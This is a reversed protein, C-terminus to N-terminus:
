QKTDGMSPSTLLANSSTGLLHLRAAFLMAMSASQRPHDPLVIGLEALIARGAQLAEAFRDTKRCLAMRTLYVRTKDIGSRAQACIITFLRENEEVLQSRAAAEAAESHAELTLSYHSSWAGAPLLELATATFRRFHIVSGASKAQAAAALNLAALELRQKETELTHLGQNLHGVIETIPYGRNTTEVLHRMVTGIRVKILSRTEFPLLALAAHRVQDHAFRYHEPQQDTTNDVAGGQWCRPTAPIILGNLLAKTLETATQQRSKGYVISLLTLDFCPGICGAYQLVTRPGSPFAEISRTLLIGVNPTVATAMITRLDSDWRGSEENFCITGAEHLQNLFQKLFFPNGGTKELCCRALPLMCHLPQYLTESLLSGIEDVTLPGLELHVLPSEPATSRGITELIAAAAAGTAASAILLGQRKPDQLFSTILTLTEHDIRHLDDQIIVLTKCHHDIADILRQCIALGPNVCLHRNPPLDSPAGLLHELEPILGIAVRAQEGLARRFLDQWRARQGTAVSLLRRVLRRFAIIMPSGPASEQDNDASAFIVIAGRAELAKGTEQLLLTKGSGSEGTILYARSAATGITDYSGMLCALERNRGIHRAPISFVPSIDDRGVGFDIISRSEKLEILCRMLDPILGSCSQYRDDASKEILKLIIASLADPIDPNFEQPPIPAKALHSHVQQILDTGTFPRSGTLLEYLVVGLSYFDSRYDLQKNIRGTQEPSIYALAGQTQYGTSLLSIGHEQHFRFQFRDAQNTRHHFPVPHPGPM